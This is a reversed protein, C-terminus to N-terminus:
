DEMDLIKRITEKARRLVQDVANPTVNKGQKCLIDATKKSSLGIFYKLHIVEKPYGDLLDIAEHLKKRKDEDDLM